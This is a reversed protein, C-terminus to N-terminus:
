PHIKLVQLQGGGLVVDLDDSAKVNYTVYQNALHGTIQVTAVKPSVARYQTPTINFGNPASVGVGGPYVFNTSANIQDCPTSTRALQAAILINTTATPLQIQSEATVVLLDGSTLTGVDVCYLVYWTVDDGTLTTFNESSAGTDFPSYTEAYGPAIGSFLWAVAGAAVAKCFIANMRMERM